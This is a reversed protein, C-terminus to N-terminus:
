SLSFTRYFPGTVKKGEEGNPLDNESMTILSYLNRQSDLLIETAVDTSAIGDVKMWDQIALFAKQSVREAVEELYPNLSKSSRRGYLFLAATTAASSTFSQIIASRCDQSWGAFQKHTMLEAVLSALELGRQVLRYETLVNEDMVDVIFSTNADSEEGLSGMDSDYESEEAALSRRTRKHRSHNKNRPPAAPKQTSAVVWERGNCETRWRSVIRNLEVLVHLDVLGSALAGPMGLLRAYLQAALLSSHTLTIANQRGMADENAQEDYTMPLLDDLSVRDSMIRGLCDKLDDMSHGLADRLTAPHVPTASRSHKTPTPTCEHEQQQHTDDLLSLITRLSEVTNNDDDRLLSEVAQHLLPDATTM